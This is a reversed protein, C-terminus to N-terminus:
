AACADADGLAGTHDSLRITQEPTTVETSGHRVSGEGVWVYADCATDVPTGASAGAPLALAGAVVALPLISRISM